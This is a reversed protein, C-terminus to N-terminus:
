YEWDLLMKNEPGLFLAPGFFNDIMKQKGHMLGPGHALQAGAGLRQHFRGIHPYAGIVHLVLLEGKM